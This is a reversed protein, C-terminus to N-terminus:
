ITLIRKFLIRCLRVFSMRVGQAGTPDKTKMQIQKRNKLDPLKKNKVWLRQVNVGQTCKSSSIKDEGCLQAAPFYRM